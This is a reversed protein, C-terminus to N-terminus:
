AARYRRYQRYAPGALLLVALAAAAVVLPLAHVGETQVTRTSAGLLVAATVWPTEGLATGLAYASLPVRALGATYSVPDAPLPALRAAVVGRLPGAGAFYREGATGVRGLLGAHGTTRALLYPPLCTLVAGALAVPIGVPGLVVGVAISVVSIPWAFLPRVLYAALLLGVFQWPHAALATTRALVAAPSLLLAGTGAVGALLVMGVLQRRTAPHM